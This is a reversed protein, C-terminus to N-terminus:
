VAVAGGGMQPARQDMVRHLAAGDNHVAQALHREFIAPAAGRL